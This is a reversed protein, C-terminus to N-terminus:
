KREGELEIEGFDGGADFELTGTMSDKGSLKSSWDLSLDAGDHETTFSFTLSGDKVAVNKLEYSEDGRALKVDLEGAKDSVTMIPMLTIGDPTTLTFEWEGVLARLAKSLRKRTAKIDFEGSEGDVSYEISGSLADGRPKCIYTLALASGDYDMTYSFSLTNKELKVDEVDIAEGNFTMAGSVKGGKNSVVLTPSYDNGDAATFEFNWTGVVEAPGVFRKPAWEIEGMAQGGVALSASGEIWDSSVKGEWKVEVDSGQVTTTMELNLMGDKFKGNKIEAEINQDSYTGTVKEGDVELDLKSNIIQGQMDIDWKWTGAPTPKQAQAISSVALFLCLTVIHKM